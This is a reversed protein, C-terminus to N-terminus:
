MPKTRYEFPTFNKNLHTLTKVNTKTKYEFPTFNKNLHTLTKVNTQNQVQINSLEITFCGNM